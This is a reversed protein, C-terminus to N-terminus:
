APKETWEPPPTIEPKNGPGDLGASTVTMLVRVKVDHDCLAQCSLRVQGLLDRSELVERETQTMREPEGQLYEIRCTTGGPTPAAATTDTESHLVGGLAGTVEFGGEPAPTVELRLMQYVRNREGGALDELAVPIRGAWSELLADRDKELKKVREERAELTALEAQALRRTEELSKLKSGLEELTMLGLAQQDQYASRLRDCEEMKETWSTLEEASRRGGAEREQDILAEMGATIREPDGLLSSVFDWVPPEVRKVPVGKQPCINTGYDKSRSCRYYHYPRCARAANARTTQTAMKLGCSCRMLGRLEWERTLHKRESVKNAATLTRARDVLERDLYVPVPVAVWEEKPRWVFTRRKRYRRGGEGDPESVTEISVKQRNYWQVGYEKSSDLRALTEPAILGAIEEHTHPLYVENNLLRRLVRLSWTRGGKPASVGEARLRSQMARLGHGEAAMRFVKEVVLMEPEYVVLGNKAEDFRFGYNPTSAVVRGERAKRMKGRRSREAFKAREYKALQDLIGDTLEGEPSEDGRDNLSRIKVGHEDFERRLLYHYAPERAFRDRDQALVVSIGGAVVLDRVRDMGPRALSAGSQGRDLVEEIVEYGERAAYDRLAEIQQALSYGSRAQEDTSVRAYLIARQPGHGNTSPMKKAERLSNTRNWEWLV